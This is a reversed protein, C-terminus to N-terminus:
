VHFRRRFNKSTRGLPQIARQTTMCVDTKGDAGGEARQISKSHRDNHTYLLHHENRDNFNAHCVGNGQAGSKGMVNCLEYFLVTNLSRKTRAYRPFWLVILILGHMFHACGQTWKKYWHAWAIQQTSKMNWSIVLLHEHQELRGM